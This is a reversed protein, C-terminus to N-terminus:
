GLAVGRAEADPIRSEGRRQRGIHHIRTRRGRDGAGGRCEASDSGTRRERGGIGERDGVFNEIANVHTGVALHDELIAVDERRWAAEDTWRGLRAHLVGHRRRTGDVCYPHLRTGVRCARCRGREVVQRDIGLRTHGAERTQDKARANGDASQGPRPADVERAVVGVVHQRAVGAAVDDRAVVAVVGKSASRAIVGKQTVQSGICRDVSTVKGVIRGTARGAVERNHVITAAGGVARICNLVDFEQLERVRRNWDGIDKACDPQEVVVVNQNATERGDLRRDIRRSVAIPDNDPSSGVGLVEGDILRHM